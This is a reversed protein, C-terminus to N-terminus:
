EGRKARKGLTFFDWPPLPDGADAACLKVTEKLPMVLLRPDGRIMEAAHMFQYHHGEHELAYRYERTGDRRSNVTFQTAQYFQPITVSGETGLIVALNEGECDFGGMLQATAGGPISPQIAVRTM